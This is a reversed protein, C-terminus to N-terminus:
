GAIAVGILKGIGFTIAAAGLGFIVQRLGSFLLGKGTFLTIGGGIIFLGFASFISSVMIANTGKFFLFPILPIIAGISFLAFSTIAAVWASGGLEKTDIGLEEKVLTEVATEKSKFVEKAMDAAQERSLGKSQYILTLEKLEEEVSNDFEEEETQIQRAYLERSSQVSLWEGLAMSIAGALLGAFGAIIIERSGSTAGAVGMILSLNSVLGDNSGMVAARLANGGVSKHRGELRAINSGSSGSDATMLNELIRVHNLESGSVSEGKRAKDTISSQAINKETVMLSNLIFGYGLFRTLNAKIRASVSPAPLESKIGAKNIRSLLRNAHGNEIDAMQKYLDSLTKDDTKDSVTKYLFSADVETQLQKKLSKSLSRGM